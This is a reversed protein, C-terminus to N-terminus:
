VASGGLAEPVQSEPAPEKPSLGSQFKELQEPSVLTKLLTNNCELQSNMEMLELIQEKLIEVEERVAHMLHNKTVDLSGHSARDQQRRGGHQSKGRIRAVETAAAAPESPVPNDMQEQM